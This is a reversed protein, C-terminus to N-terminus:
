ITLKMKDVSVVKGNENILNTFKDELAKLAVEDLNPNVIVVSEYKNMINGGGKPKCGM